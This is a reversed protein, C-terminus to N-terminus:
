SIRVLSADEKRYTDSKKDYVLTGEVVNLFLDDDVSDALVFYGIHITVEGNAPINIYNPNNTNERLFDDYYFLSMDNINILGSDVIYETLHCLDLKTKDIIKDQKIYNNNTINKGIPQSELTENQDYQTDDKFNPSFTKSEYIFYDYYYGDKTTYRKVNVYNNRKLENLYKTVVKISKGSVMSILKLNFKTDDKFSLLLTMLGIAGFSLNKDKLYDNDIITYNCEKVIRYISM